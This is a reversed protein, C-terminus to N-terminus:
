NNLVGTLQAVSRTGLMAIATYFEVRTRYVPKEDIEGLDYAQVGGNTVGIVGADTGFRVIYISSAASSSGQTETQPIIDNGAEDRGIDLLPIGAYTMVPKGFTDRDETYATERRAASRFKALVKSNMILVDPTGDVLAIAEEVKDFFAQRAASDSGVVAIGNTAGAIKQGAPVLQKLGAFENGSGSGNIFADHFALRVSKSKQRIVEARLDAVNQSGSQTQVLFRDVDADGGLIKLAVTQTTLTGTSETYGSNIARFGAAPLANEQTFQYANGAVQEFPLRQMLTSDETVTEIVGRVLQNTSLKSAETLNMAM